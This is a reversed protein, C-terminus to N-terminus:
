AVLLAYFKLNCFASKEKTASYASVRLVPTIAPMTMAAMTGNMQMPTQMQMMQTATRGPAQQADLECLLRLTVVVVLVTTGETGTVM